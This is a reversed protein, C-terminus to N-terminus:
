EFENGLVGVCTVLEGDGLIGGRGPVGVERDRTSLGWKFETDGRTLWGKGCRYCLRMCLIVNRGMMTYKHNKKKPGIRIHLM